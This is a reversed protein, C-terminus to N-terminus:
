FRDQLSKRVSTQSESERLSSIGDEVVQHIRELIQCVKGTESLSALNCYRSRRTRETEEEVVDDLMYMEEDLRGIVNRLPMENSKIQSQAARAAKSEKCLPEHVRVIQLFPVAMKLQLLVNSDSSEVTLRGKYDSYVCTSYQPMLNVIRMISPRYKEDGQLIFRMNGEGGYFFTNNEIPQSHPFGHNRDDVCITRVFIRECCKKINEPKLTCKQKKM